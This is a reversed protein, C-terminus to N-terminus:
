QKSSSAITENMSGTRYGMIDVTVYTFGIEKFRRYIQSSFEPEIARAIEGSNLEIRAVDGHFRVRIQNFGLARLAEEALEVKSLKTQTITEGYPFRSALCAFAPKNWTPLGMERSLERIEAKTLGAEKLPSIVGAERAAQAGPRYDLADDANAGDLVAAIGEQRAIAALKGFLEGKCYYCRNPPNDAFGAIDLEESEIVRHEAGTLRAISRAEELERVPYTSSTATVALVRGGMPALTDFAAKLLFSSDVGGSFAILVSGLGRLRDQLQTLKIHADSM